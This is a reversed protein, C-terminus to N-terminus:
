LLLCFFGLVPLLTDFVRLGQSGFLSLPLKMGEGGVQWVVEVSVPSVCRPAVRQGTEM